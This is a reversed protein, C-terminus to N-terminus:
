AIKGEFSQYPNAFGLSNLINVEKAEMKVADTEKVHDYGLLHLCGHVVMHAWHSKATKNQELAERNVVDSCIVIDGLIQIKNNLFDLTDFPFALVNTSGSKKRYTSNLTRMEDNDVVRITVEYQQKKKNTQLLAAEAWRKLLIPGPIRKPVAYQIVIRHQM